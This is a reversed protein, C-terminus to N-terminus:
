DNIFEEFDIHSQIPLRRSIQDSIGVLYSEYSKNRDRKIKSYDKIAAVAGLILSSGLSIPNYLDAGFVSIATLSVPVGAALATEPMGSHIFQRSRKYENKAKEIEDLLDSMDSELQDRDTVTHLRSLFENIKARLLAKEDSRNNCFSIIDSSTLNTVDSPFIDELILQCYLGTAEPNYVFEDFNGKETFYPAISWCQQNDTGTVIRRSRAIANALFLMYYGIAEKPLALWEGGITTIGSRQFINWLKHYVKDKHLRYIHEENDELDFTLGAANKTKLFKGFNLATEMKQAESVLIDKVLGEDKLCKIFDSDNPSYGEPVIRCIRDWYLLSQKVWTENKIEISPYYLIEAKM